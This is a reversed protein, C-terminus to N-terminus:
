NRVFEAKNGVEDEVILKGDKQSYKAPKVHLKLFSDDGDASSFDHFIGNKTYSAPEFIIKKSSLSFNGNIVYESDASKLSDLIEKKQEDPFLNEYEELYEIKDFSQSITKSFSGDDNFLYKIKQKMYFYAFVSSPDEKDYFLETKVTRNSTWEGILFSPDEAKCSFFIFLNLFLFVGAFLYKIVRM